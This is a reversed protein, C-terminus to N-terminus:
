NLFVKVSSMLDICDPFHLKPKSSIDKIMSIWNHLFQRHFLYHEPFFFKWTNEVVNVLVHFFLQLIILFAQFNQLTYSLEESVDYCPFPQSQSLPHSLVNIAMRIVFM